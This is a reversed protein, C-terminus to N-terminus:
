KAYNFTWDAANSNFLARDRLYLAGIRPESPDEPNPDCLLSLISIVVKEITMTPVWYAPELLSMCIDGNGGINPHYIKTIFEVKPPKEPYDEPITIKLKFTGGEYPSNEPGRLVSYWTFPDEGTEDPGLFLCM